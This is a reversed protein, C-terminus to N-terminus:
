WGVNNGSVMRAKAGTSDLTLTGDSAQKATPAGTITYTPPTATNDVGVSITYYPNTCTAACTWDDTSTINLSNSGAITANYSRADLLYQGERTAIKQMLQEAASRRSRKMYNDYSPYAVAALIAIVAVTIMLEILTFGRIRRM